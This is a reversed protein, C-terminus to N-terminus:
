NNKTLILYIIGEGGVQECVSVLLPAISSSDPSTGLFRLILVPETPIAKMRSAGYMRPHVAEEDDEGVMEEAEEDEKFWSRAETAIKALISTKGCGHEGYFIMPIDVTSKLYDKALALETDRGFFLHSGQLGNWLHQLVEAFFVDRYKAHKRM